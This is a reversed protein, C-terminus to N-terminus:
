RTLLSWIRGMLERFDVSHALQSGFGSIGIEAVDGRGLGFGIIATSSASTGAASALAGSPPTLTEFEGAGAFVGSTGSFIGLGDRDVILPQRNGTVMGGVAAGLADVGAPASPDLAQGGSITVGRRLSDVGISLVHGGAVVYDHLVASISSPLWRESGALIVGRYRGLTGAGGGAALLALDTTLDYHLKEGTLYRLVAAEDALDSPPGAALPRAIMVPGGNTLINPIGDGDDDVPNTGQWTLAPLVVLVRSRHSGSPGSGILPVVTHHTGSEVALDFLGTGVAPIRVLLPQGAPPGNGRALVKPRGAVFLRWSYAHRRSDVYLLARGGAAVPTLPPQVALYRITVGAHPASGPGPPNSRPFRGKTCAPGTTQLGVLYIGAPAPRGRILGDWVATGQALPQIKFTKVLKPPGPLDTRLVDAFASMGTAGSYTIKVASGPPSILGPAVGRVVPRPVTTTLTIPGIQDTRDQGLLVVRYYYTGDPALGGSDTTGDWLFAGPPNRRNKPMYRDSAITRVINGAPDVIYVAVRDAHHQLYFTVYTSRFSVEHGNRLCAGGAVPDLTAPEPRPAGNIFPTTVKLHQAIFFAGVTAVVLAAFAVIPLRSL